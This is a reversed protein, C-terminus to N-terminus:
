RPLPPVHYIRASQCSRLWSVGGPCPLFVVCLSVKTVDPAAFVVQAPLPVRYIAASQCSRPTVELMAFVVQAVPLVRNIAVSQYSRPRLVLPPFVFTAVSQYSRAGCDTQYIKLSSTFM